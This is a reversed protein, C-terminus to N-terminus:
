SFNTRKLAFCAYKKFKKRIEKHEFKVFKWVDDDDSENIINLLKAGDTTLIYYISDIENQIWSSSWRIYKKRHDCLLFNFSLEDNNKFWKDIIRSKKNNITNKNNTTSAHKFDANKKILFFM